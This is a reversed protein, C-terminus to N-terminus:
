NPSLTLSIIESKTGIRFPPGFTGVGESVFVKTGKFDHLGRNYEFMMDSFFNFPFIQGAHTHGALYLDIGYKNAYKIGNPAHHLLVTAKERDIDLRPLTEAITPNDGSAHMDLSNRDALMYNLGIIQLGNLHTVENELVKVGVSRMLAVISDNDTAHDHNGDVFYIPAKLQKLPEFYKKNLAYKSDLYDGTLFIVDPNQANTKSIIKQLFGNTRFHGIHIDTLHVAKVEQNLGQIPINVPTVRINSANWYGLVSILCALGFGIFGYISPSQKVFM